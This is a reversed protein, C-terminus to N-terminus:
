RVYGTEQEVVIQRGGSIGITQATSPRGLRDFSFSSAATYSAGQGTVIYQSSGVGGPPALAPGCAPPEYATSYTLALQTGGTFTACVTRQTAIATQQAYRLAALTQDYLRVEDFSSGISSLRPLAVAALVGM